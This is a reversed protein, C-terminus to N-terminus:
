YDIMTMMTVILIITLMRWAAAAFVGNNGGGGGRQRRVELHAAAVALIASRGLQRRRQWAPRQWQAAAM